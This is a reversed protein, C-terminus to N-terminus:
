GPRVEAPSVRERDLRDVSGPGITEEMWDVIAEIVAEQTQVPRLGAGGGTPLVRMEARASPGAGQRLGELGRGLRRRTEEDGGHLFLVATSPLVRAVEPILQAPPRLGLRRLAGSVVRRGSAPRRRMVPGLSQPLISVVSRCGPLREAVGFVARAGICNGALGIRTAELASVAVSAVAVIEAVPPDEMDFGYQGTSDGVGRYDMRVSAIGREALGRATRTWLRYKHSHPAGGAGQLLIVLSEAPSDPATLVAALHDAEFPVFVSREIV